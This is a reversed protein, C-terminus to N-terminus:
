AKVGYQEIIEAEFASHTPRLKNLHKGSSPTQIFKNNPSKYIKLM